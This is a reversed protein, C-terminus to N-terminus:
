VLFSMQEIYRFFEQLIESANTKVDPDKAIQHLIVDGKKAVYTGITKRESTDQM